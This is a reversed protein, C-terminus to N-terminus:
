NAMATYVADRQQATTQTNTTTCWRSTGPRVTSRTSAYCLAIVYFMDTTSTLSMSKVVQFFKRNTDSGNLSDELTQASIQAM